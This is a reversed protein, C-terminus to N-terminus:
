TRIPREVRLDSGSTFAARSLAGEMGTSSDATLNITTGAVTDIQLETTRHSVVEFGDFEHRHRYAYEMVAGGGIFSLASLLVLGWPVLLAIALVAVLGLAICGGMLIRYVITSAQIGNAFRRHVGATHGHGESQGDPEGHTASKPRQRLYEATVLVGITSLALPPLLISRSFQLIGILGLVVAVGGGAVILRYDFGRYTRNVRTGTRIACIADHGLSVVKDNTSICLVRRDTVGVSVPSRDGDESLTASFTAELSEEPGLRDHLPDAPATM